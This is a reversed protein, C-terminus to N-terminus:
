GRRRLYPKLDAWRVALEIGGMSFPAIEYPNFCWTVGSEDVRFNGNPRPMSLMMDMEAGEAELYDELALLLLGSVGDEYGEALLDRESVLEGTSLDYVDYSVGTVDYTGGTYESGFVSYTQLHRSACAPGFVARREFVFSGDADEADIDYGSKILDLWQRCAAFVDASGGAEDYLIHREIISANIRDKVAPSVGGTLYAVSLSIRCPINDPGAEFTEEATFTRIQLGRSCGALLLLASLVAVPMM